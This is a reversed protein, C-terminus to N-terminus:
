ANWFKRMREKQVADLKEGIPKFEEDDMDHITGDKLTVRWFSPTGRMDPAIFDVTQINEM